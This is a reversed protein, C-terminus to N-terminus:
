INISDGPEMIIVESNNVQEKFENPDAKIMDFTNYHMPIVKKPKIFEVARVADRVDMTYNGGIPILAVDIHEVELLKMDMTLGTDGAHYLSKDKITIVFGGPNGGDRTGNETKISSGHLAPTMKVTGFEFVTRGGIHMPHVNLGKEALYGAIEANTIILADHAKALEVADGIHDGHGHTIFIHTLEKIDTSKIKSVPNNNIFPDIVAKVSGAEFYFTAHGIFELKM